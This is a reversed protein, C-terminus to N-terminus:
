LIANVGMLLCVKAAGLKTVGPAVAVAAAAAAAAVDDGKACDDGGGGGSGSVGELVIGAEPLSFIFLVEVEEVVVM